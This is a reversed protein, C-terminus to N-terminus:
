IPVIEISEIAKNDLLRDALKYLIILGDGRGSISVIRDNVDKGYKSIIEYEQKDQPM